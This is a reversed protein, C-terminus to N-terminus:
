AGKSRGPNSDARPAHYGAWAILDRDYGLTLPHLPDGDATLGFIRVPKGSQLILATLSDFQHRLNAPVKDRRGWCPVLLDAEATIQRLHHDNDPGVPDPALALASVHRARFAFPNGVIFRRGGNRSTFGIWKRVTHDDTDATATSGNIGFYAIVIGEHQVDRDLRYRWTGCPSIVASGISFLDGM